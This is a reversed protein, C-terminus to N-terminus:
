TTSPFGSGLKDRSAALIAAIKTNDGWIAPSDYPRDPYAGYQLEIDLHHKRIFAEVEDALSIPDGSCCNIIGDVELQTVSAAIQKALEDVQIFDYLNKGSTFPFQKQGKQAAALLKTFVSHNAADDGYIYYGRLWQLITSKGQVYQFLSRRLADKAVGYQSIPSCPTNENVAGEWYGIEHVTGMVALQKIGSDVLTTCFEFHQSLMGMHTKSNHVFGDQWALHVCCDPEGALEYVDRGRSFIDLNHCEALPSCKETSRGLAVVDVNQTLLSQVVHQGIYGNAGTVLVRM